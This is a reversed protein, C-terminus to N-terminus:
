RKELKPLADEDQFMRRLMWPGIVPTAMTRTILNRLALSAPSKPAFWGGLRVASKQRGTVFPKFAEEFRRFAAVHDGGSEALFRALLYAGAMAFASGEGALLSPCYAADGLLVVRGHSWSEMRIQSVRDFYVDDAADLAALMEPAEWGLGSYIEALLAKQAPLERPLLRRDASDLFFLFFGTDNGRLTYRAIQRGPVTHSVYVGEDRHPYDKAIFGATRYGLFKEFAAEPGFVLDRTISHLGGAGVVLGFRRPAAKEFTVDVGDADQAIATISDDFLFEAEGAIESYIAHALDGRLLSFFRNGLADRMVTADVATIRRGRADVLRLENIFYGIDRLRDLLGMREVMGYGLGWVDIMYGSGRPRPAREVITPEIGQRSLWFALAPGAIGCGSILVKQASM